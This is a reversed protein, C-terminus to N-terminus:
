VYKCFLNFRLEQMRRVEKQMFDRLLAGGINMHSIGTIMESLSDEWKHISAIPATIPPVFVEIPDNKFPDLGPYDCATEGNKYIVTPKVKIVTSAVTSEKVSNSVSSSSKSELSNSVPTEVSNHTEINTTDYNNIKKVENSNNQQELNTTTLKPNIINNKVTSDHNNNTNDIVNHNQSVTINSSQVILSSSVKENNNQNMTMATEISIKDVKNSINIKQKSNNEVNDASVIKVDNNNLLSKSRDSRRTLINNENRESKNDIANNLNKSGRLKIIKESVNYMENNNFSDTHFHVLCMVATILLLIMITVMKFSLFSKPSNRSGKNANHSVSSKYPNSVRM